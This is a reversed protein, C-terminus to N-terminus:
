RGWGSGGIRVRALLFRIWGSGHSGRHGNVTSNITYYVLSDARVLVNVLPEADAAAAENKKWGDEQRLIAEPEPFPHEQHGEVKLSGPGRPGQM